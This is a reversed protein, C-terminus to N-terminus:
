VALKVERTGYLFKGGTRAAASRGLPSTALGLLLARVWEAGPYTGMVILPPRKALSQIEDIEPGREPEVRAAAADLGADSANARLAPVLQNVAVVADRLAVNIGQAGVPSMTHAADGILLAGPKAWGRVRDTEADLLFPRSLASASARFHEALDPSVHEAMARVWDPAGRSRLEGYTGKRIV